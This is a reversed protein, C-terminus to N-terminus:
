GAKGDMQPTLQTHYANFFTRLRNFEPEGIETDGYWVIEYALTLESFQGYTPQERMENLFDHNTKDKKWRIKGSHHLEQLLRLFLLRVGTKFDGSETSLRIMRDMDSEEFEEELHEFFYNLDSQIRLNRNTSAQNIFRFILYGLLGIVLFLMITKGLGSTFFRNLREIFSTGWTHDNTDFTKKEEEEKQKKEPATYDLDKTADKWQQDTWPEDRIGFSREPALTFLALVLLPMFRFSSKRWAM